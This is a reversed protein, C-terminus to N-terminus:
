VVVQTIRKGKAPQQFVNQFLTVGIGNATDNQAFRLIEANREPAHVAAGRFSLHCSSKLLRNSTQKELKNSEMM